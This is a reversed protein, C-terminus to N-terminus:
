FFSIEHRNKIIQRSSGDRQISTREQLQGRVQRHAIGPAVTSSGASSLVVEDVKLVADDFHRGPLRGCDGHGHQFESRKWGAPQKGAQGFPPGPRAQGRQGWAPWGPQGEGGGPMWRVCHDLSVLRCSWLHQLVWQHSFFRSGFPGFMLNGTTVREWNGARQGEEPERQPLGGGMQWRIESDILQPPVGGTLRQLLLDGVWAAMKGGSCTVGGRQRRCSGIIQHQPGRQGILWNRKLWRDQLFYLGKFTRMQKSTKPLDSSLATPNYSNKLILFSNIIGPPLVTLKHQTARQQNSTPVQGKLWM